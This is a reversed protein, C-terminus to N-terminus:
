NEIILFWHKDVLPLDWSLTLNVPLLSFQGITAAKLGPFWVFLKSTVIKLIRAPCFFSFQAGDLTSRILFISQIQGNKCIRMIQIQFNSAFQGLRDFLLAARTASAGFIQLITAERDELRKFFFETLWSVQFKVLVSGVLNLRQSWCDCLYGNNYRYQQNILNGNCTSLM